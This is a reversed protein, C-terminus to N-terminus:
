EDEDIEREYFYNFIYEGLSKNTMKPKKLQEKITQVKSKEVVFSISTMPEPPLDFNSIDLDPLKFDSEAKIYTQVVPSSIAYEQDDFIIKADLQDNSRVFEDVENRWSIFLREVDRMVELACQYYKSSLDVGTKTTNWPLDELNSSEFQVMGRFAAFSPHFLRIDETGWGTEEKQNAFLVTRGNCSIYWGANKPEGMKACGAVITINVDDLRIRKVYPAYKKGFLIKIDEYIVDKGNVNVQVNLDKIMSSRKKVYKFFSEKFFPNSFSFKIPDYLETVTIKTGCVSSDNNAHEDVKSFNFTWDTGEEKLWEDVNVHISFSETPTKSEIDFVRGMRFLARKMGIGFVGTGDVLDFDRSNDRGFRFCYNRADFISIGGCTDSITFKDEDFTVEIKCEADDGSNKRVKRAGDLSNDVLEAIAPELDIDRVLMRIFFQKTPNANITLQDSVINM